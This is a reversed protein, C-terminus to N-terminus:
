SFRNLDTLIKLSSQTFLWSPLGVYGLRIGQLDFSPIWDPDFKFTLDSSSLFLHKLNSLNHFNRESIIGSLFNDDVGLVELNFLQRLIKPLSENLLNSELHLEILSSLNGLVAPIVWSFSNYFLDLEQLEELQGLWDPIPGNIFDNESFDLSKISRLNPLPKPLQSHIHSQSLDIHSIDCSLNFIWGPLESKFDNASIDLVELATFNAYQISPYINELQCNALHLELLSPLM